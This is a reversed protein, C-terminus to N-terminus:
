YLGKTEEQIQDPSQNREQRVDRVHLAKHRENLYSVSNVGYLPMVLIAPM